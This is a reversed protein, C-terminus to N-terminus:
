VTKLIFRADSGSERLDNNALLAEGYTMQQSYIVEGDLVLDFTEM